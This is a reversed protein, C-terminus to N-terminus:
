ELDAEAYIQLLGFLHSESRQINVQLHLLDILFDFVDYLRLGGRFLHM